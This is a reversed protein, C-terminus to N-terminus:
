VGGRGRMRRGEERVGLGKDVKRERVDKGRGRIYRGEQLMKQGHVMPFM